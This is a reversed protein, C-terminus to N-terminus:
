AVVVPTQVATWGPDHVARASQLLLEREANTFEVIVRGHREVTLRGDTSLACSFPAAHRQKAYAFISAAAQANVHRVLMADGVLTVPKQDQSPDMRPGLSWMTATETRRSCLYGARAAPNLYRHIGNHQQAIADALEREPLETGSPLTALHSVAAHPVTGPQLEYTM